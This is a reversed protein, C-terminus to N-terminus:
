AIVLAVGAPHPLAGVDDALQMIADESTTVTFTMDYNDTVTAAADIHQVARTMMDLTAAGSWEDYEARAKLFSRYTEDNLPERSELAALASFRGHEFGADQTNFRALTEASSLIFPRQVGLREGLYDLYIGMATDLSRMRELEELPQTIEEDLVDLWIKLLARLNPATKWQSIFLEASARVAM